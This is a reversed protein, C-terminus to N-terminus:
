VLKLWIQWFTVQRDYNNDAGGDEEESTRGQDEDATTEGGVDGVSGAQPGVAVSCVTYAETYASPLFFLISQNFITYM